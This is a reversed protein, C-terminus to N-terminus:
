RREKLDTIWLEGDKRSIAIKDDAVMDLLHRYLCLTIRDSDGPSDPRLLEHARRAIASLDRHGDTIAQEIAVKIESWEKM